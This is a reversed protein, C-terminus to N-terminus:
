EVEEFYHAYVIDDPRPSFLHRELWATKWEQPTKYGCNKYLKSADRSQSTIVATIVYTKNWAKFREGVEGQQTNKIICEATDKVSEPISIRKM